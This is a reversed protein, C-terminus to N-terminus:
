RQEFSLVLKILLILIRLILELLELWSRYSDLKMHIRREALLDFGRTSFGNTAEENKRGGGCELYGTSMHEHGIGNTRIEIAMEFDLTQM